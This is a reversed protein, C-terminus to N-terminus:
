KFVKATARFTQKRTCIFSTRQYVSKVNLTGPGPIHTYVEVNAVVLIVQSIVQIRSTSASSDQQTICMKAQRTLTHTHSHTLTHTHSHTLTHTHTRVRVCVRACVHVCARVRMTYLNTLSLYKKTTRPLKSSAEMRSSSPGLPQSIPTGGGDMKQPLRPESTM